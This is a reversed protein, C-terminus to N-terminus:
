HYQHTDVDYRCNEEDGYMDTEEYQHSDQDSHTSDEHNIYVYHHSHIEDTLWPQEELDKEEESLTMWQTSEGGGIYQTIIGRVQSRPHSEPENMMACQVQRLTLPCQPVTTSHHYSSLNNAPSPSRTSSPHRYRISPQPQLNNHTSLHTRSSSTSTRNCSLNSTSPLPGQCPIASRPHLTNSTFNYPAHATTPKTSKFFSNIGQLRQTRQTINASNVEADHSDAMASMRTATPPRPRRSRLSEQDELWERARKQKQINVHPQVASPARNSMHSLHNMPRTTSSCQITNSVNTTTQPGPHRSTHELTDVRSQLPMLEDEDTGPEEDIVSDILMHSSSMASAPIPRSTPTIASTTSSPKGTSQQWYKSERLIRLHKGLSSVVLPILGKRPDSDLM